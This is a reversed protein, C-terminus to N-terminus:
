QKRPTALGQNEKKLKYQFFYPIEQFKTLFDLGAHDHFYFDPLKTEVRRTQSGRSPVEQM